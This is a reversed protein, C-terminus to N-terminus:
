SYKKLIHQAATLGSFVEGGLGLYPFNEKGVFYINRSMRMPLVGERWHFDSTSEYLFHSYSWKPVHDSVWQFDVIEIYHELFPYLHYLHKMVGQQYDALHTQEWKGVDMLSEVTVARKGEPARTEDGKPSLSLFLLNGDDYPKGLDLISILLDKMGVPIVKEHVGLFLPIMMYIPKIKKEWKLLGKRKKGLFPSVRHLPSNIILFQSRFVAPNGESTLTFEKRWGLNIEKVRDIEEIRGGSRLFQNLIEKELKESDIDSNLENTGDFLVQTALSLPFRDSYFNGRSILQLQIFERFERSFLSLKKDVGENPFPDFSLIKTILSRQRFPFSVPSKKKWNVKQLLHQIHDLENYFGEIQVVEKPFERNWEKQSLSRQPFVDIRAKPLVVQFTSRQKSKDSAPKAQKGDERTGMLLSLNL